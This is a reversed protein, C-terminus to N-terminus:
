FLEPWRPEVPLYGSLIEWSVADDPGDDHANRFRNLTTGFESLEWKAAYLKLMKPEPEHGTRETYESFVGPGLRDAAIMWLDRDRPAITVTDWDILVPGDAGLVVNALHPEGHTLVWQHRPPAQSVLEDFHTVLRRLGGANEELLARARRGYPGDWGDTTDTLLRELVDRHAPRFSEADVDFHSAGMRHLEAVVSLVARADAASEYRGNDTSRGQIHPWLSFLRDGERVVVEGATTPIPGRVFRAGTEALQLACRYRRTASDIDREKEAADTLRSYDDLTVFLKTQGTLAWWHCSGFGVPAYELRVNSLAWHEALLRAVVDVSVPPEGRM